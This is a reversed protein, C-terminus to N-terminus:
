KVYSIVNKGFDASATLVGVVTIHFVVFSVRHDKNLSNM